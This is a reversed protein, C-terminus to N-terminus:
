VESRARWLEWAFRARVGIDLIPRPPLTTPGGLKMMDDILPNDVDCAMDAALIGGITGKTIGVGNQCLSTYVNKAIQGFGPAGNRSLCIFGTWTHEMDVNSLMPFREDFLRKHERKITQRRADSQRLSPCFHVNQRVLIRRDSTLRMTIGAFSNAPTLGWPDPAGIAKYEHEELQRSLSAHAAFNLLKRRFFGFQEGFGNVTLIMAPAQISGKATTILIHEGYDIKIVASNEYLTVNDPLSDALGRVLAAPNLLSTGYTFIAAKFHNTGLRKALQDGELYDFPEKLRELEKITPTLVDRVGQDSVAAHFKGDKRWDCDINFRDIQQKLHDIAARALARYSHSKALEEMSSSVNHPLDIAFGAARGSTGKGVEQADILAIQDDPRNEALRRAAAVGAYGAGLVIWDAKIYGKLAACPKRVPLIKSWGNTKDDAPLIRIAPM